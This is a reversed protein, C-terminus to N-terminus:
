VLSYIKRAITIVLSPTTISRATWSNEELVVLTRIVFKMSWSQTMAVIFLFLSVEAKMMLNLQFWSLRLDWYTCIKSSCKRCTLALLNRSYLISQVLLTKLQVTVTIHHFQHTCLIPVLNKWNFPFCIMTLTQRTGPVHLIMVTMSWVIEEMSKLWIAQLYIRLHM